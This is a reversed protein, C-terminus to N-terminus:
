EGLLATITSNCETIAGSYENFDDAFDDIGGSPETVLLYLANYANFLDDVNESLEDAIGEDSDSAALVAYAACIDGYAAEISSADEEVEGSLWEMAKEVMKDYDMTGNVSGLAKWYNHEYKGINSLLVAEDMVSTNFESVATKYEELDFAPAQPESPSPSPSSASPQGGCASLLLLSATLVSLIMKKM